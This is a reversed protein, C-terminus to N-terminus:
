QCSASSNLGDFGHRALLEVEVALRGRGGLRNGEVFCCVEVL